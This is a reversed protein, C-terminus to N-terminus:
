PTAKVKRAAIPQDAHMRCREGPRTPVVCARGRTSTYGGCRSTLKNTGPCEAHVFGIPPRPVILTGVEIPHECRPCDSERTAPIPQKM